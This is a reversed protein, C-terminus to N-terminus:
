KNRDYFNISAKVVKFIYAPYDEKLVKLDERAESRTKYFIDAFIEFNKENKYRPVIVWLNM